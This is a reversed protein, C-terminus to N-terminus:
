KTRKLEDLALCVCGMVGQKDNLQPRVIYNEIDRLQPTDLYGNVQRLVEKRILDMLQTQHM